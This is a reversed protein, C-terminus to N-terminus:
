PWESEETREDDGRLWRSASFWAVAAFFMGSGFSGLTMSLLALISASIFVSIWLLSSLPQEDPAPEPPPPPSADAEFSRVFEPDDSTLDQLIRRLAESDYYNSTM